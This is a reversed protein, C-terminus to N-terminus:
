TSEIIHPVDYGLRQALQLLRELERARRNEEELTRKLLEIEVDKEFKAAMIENISCDLDVDENKSGKARKVPPGAGLSESSRTRVPM